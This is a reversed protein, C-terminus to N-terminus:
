GPQPQTEAEGPNHDDDALHRAHRCPEAGDDHLRALKRAGLDDDGAHDHDADGTEQRVLQHLPEAPAEQAPTGLMRSPSGMMATSPTLLVNRVLVPRMWASLSVESLMALPWNMQRIPADPQPLDVRSRRIPPKSIGVSPRTRMHSVSTAPGPGSRPM